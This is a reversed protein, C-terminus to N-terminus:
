RLFDIIGEIWREAKDLAKPYLRLKIEEIEAPNTTVMRAIGESWNEAWQLGKEILGPTYGKARWEEEKERKLRELEMPTLLDLRALPNGPNSGPKIAQDLVEHPLPPRPPLINRLESNRLFEHPLPPRAPLEPTREELLFPLEFPLLFFDVIDDLRDKRIRSSM